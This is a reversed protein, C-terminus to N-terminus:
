RVTVRERWGPFLDNLDRRRAEDSYRQDEPLLSVSCSTLEVGRPEDVMDNMVCGVFLVGSGQAHDLSMREFTCSDFRAVLPSTNRMLNAYGGPNSGYGGEFRCQLAQLACGQDLNMAYSGGAGCDFGVLRVRRLSVVSPAARVDAIGGDAFVTCDELAFRELAGRPSLEDLVLLTLNMGAGRLTIDRPFPTRGRALDAVAFVGAPFDLVAGDALPDGEHLDRGSVAAGASRTRFLAAFRDPDRALAGLAADDREKKSLL